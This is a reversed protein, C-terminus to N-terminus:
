PPGRRRARIARTYDAIAKDYDGMEDRAYGRNHYAIAYGPDLRIAESTTPSPRTTIGNKAGPSQRPQQVVKAFGPDLQIARTTTPSPPTTNRRPLCTRPQLLGQCEQPRAPHRTHLRRDGQRLGGHGESPSAATTTRGPRGPSRAPHGRQLRRHGPRIGEQRSPHTRLQQIGPRGQPRPCPRTSTPSPRTTTRRRTGPSAATTTFRPNRPTSGSRRPSTPSPRTTSRRPSRAIGRYHYARANKPDLRIAESYEAIALDYERRARHVEGRYFYNEPIM